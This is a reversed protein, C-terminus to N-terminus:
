SRGKLLPSLSGRVVDDTLAGSWRFRVIGDADVVYTEPVGYLGFEIAVRGPEDSGVRTYPNGNQNLFNATRRDKYAIGYIPVGDAKLQMLVPAEEVCPICWSAFFNVLVPRHAARIEVSSFGQFAGGGPRAAGPLDFSPLKKGILMSPLGRPDYIGQRMRSLLTWAAVGGLGALALPAILLLRRSPQATPLSM